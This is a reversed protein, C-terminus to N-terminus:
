GGVVETFSGSDAGQHTPPGQDTPAGRSTRLPVEKLFLALLLAVVGMPVVAWFVPHLADDFAHVFHEYVSPSTAKLRGLQAPTVHAADIGRPSDANGLTTGLRHAFIGGFIAIGVAGGMSRFFAMSATAAGIDGHPVSNQVTLVYVVTALGVGAGFLVMGIATHWYPADLRTGFLAVTGSGAILLVAGAIPYSRYRGTRAVRRGAWITCVLMTTVIPATEFGSLTPSIRQVTQLFLPIFTILGLMAMTIVATGLISIDFVSSRFLRLPLVPEPVRTEVAVFAAALVVTATLLGVIVPSTWAYESGGWTLLLILSAAAAGLLATGAWDVRQRRRATSAPLVLAIVIVTFVGVPLNIYFVWRWSLRDTFLGGVLPGLVSALAYVSGMLGSYRGREAPPIIDAIIAQPGVALGGAGLGQLARFLILEPMNQAAGCLLSGVVFIGIAAHFLKKRGYLDGLKGYLPASVTSALLYATVIWSLHNLGGVDGVITPLATTVVTQDLSALLVSLMLGVFILRLQRPSVTIQSPATSM